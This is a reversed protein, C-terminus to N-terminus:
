PASSRTHPPGTPPKGTGQGGECHMTDGTCVMTDSTGMTDGTGPSAISVFTYNPTNPMAATRIVADTLGAPQVPIVLHFRRPTNEVVTIEVGAPVEIGMQALAARPDAHLRQKFAPDSWAKAIVQAGIHPGIKTEYLEVIRDLAASEIYGKEVLITELARM